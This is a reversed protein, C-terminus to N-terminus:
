RMYIRDHIRVLCSYFAAADHVVGVGFGKQLHPGADLAVIGRCPCVDEDAEYKGAQDGEHDEFVCALGVALAGAALFVGLLLPFLTNRNSRSCM